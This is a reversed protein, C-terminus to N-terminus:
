IGEQTMVAKKLVYAFYRYNIGMSISIIMLALINPAYITSAYSILVMILSFFIMKKGSIDMKKRKYAKAIVISLIIAMLTILYVPMGNTSAMKITRYLIVALM